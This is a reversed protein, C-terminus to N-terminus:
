LKFIYNYCNQLFINNLDVNNALKKLIYGFFSTIKLFLIIKNKTNKQIKQSKVFVFEKGFLGCGYSSNSFIVCFILKM